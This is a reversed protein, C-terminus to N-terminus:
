GVKKLEAALLPALERALLSYDIGTHAVPTLYADLKEAYINYRWGGTEDNQVPNAFPYRRQNPERKADRQLEASLFEVSMGLRKAAEAINLKDPRKKAM